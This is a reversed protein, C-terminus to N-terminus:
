IFPVKNKKLWWGGNNMLDTTLKKWKTQFRRLLDWKEVAIHVYERPLNTYANLTRTKTVYRAVWWVSEGTMRFVSIWGKLAFSVNPTVMGLSNGRELNLKSGQWDWFMRETGVTHKWKKMGSKKFHQFRKWPSEERKADMLLKYKRRLQRQQYRYTM